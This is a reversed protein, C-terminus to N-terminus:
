RRRKSRESCGAAACLRQLNEAVSGHANYIGSGAVILTAGARVVDAITEAQIGGDAAITIQDLGRESLMRRLRAIKDVSSPIFQQGGFGPEVSMVLVRDVQPLIEELAVLPTAPNLAVGPSKGLERITRVTRYLHPCAEVHVTIADAGAGAFEALYADADAIMLHTELTAGFSDALPRLAQVLLPGFSINPVFNGDMVDLHLWCVGADFAERVQEGLRLFDATLISPTIQITM